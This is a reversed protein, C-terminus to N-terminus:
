SKSSLYSTRVTKVSERFKKLGKYLAALVTKNRLNYILPNLEPAVVAYLLTDMKEEEVLSASWPGLYTFIITEFCMSVSHPPLCM